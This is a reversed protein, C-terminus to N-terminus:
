DSFTLLFSGLSGDGRRRDVGAASKVGIFALAKVLNVGLHALIYDTRVFYFAVIGVDSDRLFIAIVARKDHTRYVVVLTRM